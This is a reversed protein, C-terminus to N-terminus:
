VDLAKCAALIAEADQAKLAEAIQRGLAEPADAAGYADAGAIRKGDPTAIMARPGQQVTLFLVWVIALLGLAYFLATGIDGSLTARLRQIAVM